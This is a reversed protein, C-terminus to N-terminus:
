FINEKDLYRGTDHEKKRGTSSVGTLASDLDTKWATCASTDQLTLPWRSSSVRSWMMPVSLESDTRVLPGIAGCGLAASRVFGECGIGGAEAVLLRGVATSAGAV